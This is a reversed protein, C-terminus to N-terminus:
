PRDTLTFTRVGGSAASPVVQAAIGFRQMAVMLSGEGGPRHHKAQAKPGRRGSFLLAAPKQKLAQPAEPWQSAAMAAQGLENAAGSHSFIGRLTM